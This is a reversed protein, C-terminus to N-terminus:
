NGKVYLVSNTIRLIEYNDFSEDSELGKGNIVAEPTQIRVYDDTYVRRTNGDWYLLNTNLIEGKRNVAVVSDRAEWRNQAENFKAFKATVKCIVNGEETLRVLSVGKPLVINKERALDYRKLEPTSFRMTIHGNDTLFGTMQTADVTPKNQLNTLAIVKKVDNECSFLFLVCLLGLLSKAGRKYKVYAKSVDPELLLEKM